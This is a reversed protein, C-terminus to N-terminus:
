VAMQDKIFDSSNLKVIAYHAKEVNKQVENAYQLSEKIVDQLLATNALTEIDYKMKIYNFARALLLCDKSAQAPTTNNNDCISQIIESYIGTDTGVLQILSGLNSHIIRQDVIANSLASQTSLIVEKGSPSVICVVPESSIGSILVLDLPKVSNSISNM